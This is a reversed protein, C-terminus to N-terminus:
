AFISLRRSWDNEVLQKEGAFGTMPALNATAHALWTGPESKGRWDPRAASAAPRFQPGHRPKRARRPDTLLNTRRRHLVIIIFLLSHSIDGGPAPSRPGGWGGPPLPTKTADEGGRRRRRPREGAQLPPSLTVPPRVESLGRGGRPCRRSRGKYLYDLPVVPGLM